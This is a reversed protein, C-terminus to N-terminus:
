ALVPETQESITFSAPTVDHVHNQWMTRYASELYRVFRKSDFLPATLRTQALKAKLSAIADDNDALAIARDRYVSESECILEPLGVASVYGAAIRSHFHPGAVTLVPLGAWLADLATTSANFRFTDLFLDALHHRTFHEAKDDVRDAFVLREGAVGRADAAARLRDRTAATKTANLWLVSRPVERLISMWCDFAGGDIKLANNFACFVTADEPLGHDARTMSRDSIVPRDASSFTDPLRAIKEVYHEDDEPPTVFPDGIVYDIYRAGLGGGHGLWYVQIPAPRLALADPRGSPMYGCLDVLIDIGDAHIREATQRPSLRSVDVFDDAGARIRQHYANEPKSRDYTAYCSVSFHARDHLGYVPATVHGIPHDGFDPSFYGIRLLRDPDGRQHSFRPAGLATRDSVREAVGILVKKHLAIDTSFYPLTFALPLMAGRREPRRALVTEVRAPLSAALDNVREWRCGAPLNALLSFYALDFDPDRAYARELMDLAEETKGKRMLSNGLNVLAERHDPDLDLAARFAAIADAFKGLRQHVVGLAHHFAPDEPKLVIARRYDEIAGATDGLDARAAGRNALADPNDPGLAFAQDYAEMAAAADGTARLANGLNGHFEATDPALEIARRYCVVADEPADNEFHAIGLNNHGAAFDDRAAVAKRLYGIADEFRDREKAVVGRNSWAEAYGPEIEIATRYATDAGDADGAARRIEGLTNHYIAIGPAAEIAQRVLTEAEAQDGRQYHIQGLLHLADACDAQEALAAQYTAAAQDLRGAQHHALGYRLLQQPDM